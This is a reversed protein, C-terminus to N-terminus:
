AGLNSRSLQRELSQRILGLLYPMQEFSELAVEVDGNSLRGVSSVVKAIGKPDHLESFPMNLSLRLRQSQPVIDVVNTEGKCAM